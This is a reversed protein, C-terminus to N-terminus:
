LVLKSCLKGKRYIFYVQLILGQLAGIKFVTECITDAFYRQIIFDELAGIKHVILTKYTFIYKDSSVEFVGFNSCLKVLETQLM